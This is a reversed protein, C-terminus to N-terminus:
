YPVSLSDLMSEKGEKVLILRRLKTIASWPKISNNRVVSLELTTVGEPIKFIGVYQRPSGNFEIVETQNDLTFLVEIGVSDTSEQTVYLHYKGAVENELAYTAKDGESSMGSLYHARSLSNGSTSSPGFGNIVAVPSGKKIMYVPAQFSTETGMIDDFATDLKAILSRAVKPATAIINTTELPDAQMDFLLYNGIPEPYNPRDMAPNLILKHTETRLGIIQSSVHMHAKANDDIPTWQNFLPKDSRVDHSALLTVRTNKGGTNGQLYPLFSQGDIEPADKAPKADILELITPLIDQVDIYREVDSPMFRSPLSVFLASRVGNQWTQGKNGNMGSPNRESWEQKTMAGYNSSDWWPGNDSLFIVITNDLKGSKKLHTLLRGIQVDMEEIMGYLNAIAPRYGKKIYKEVLHKPALWPEHPALYSAYAFFPETNSADIFDITYDSIVESVWKGHEVYEGNHWGFSNEHEYLEAYYADDFGRNWPFYGETKGIHWKGWIGTRYGEARLYDSILVEDRKLFDRGGHVGSVGTKYPHRGTLLAARTTSCVPTVSFDSFRVSQSALADLHPTEISPHHYFSLDDHGLDDAMILLINPKNPAPKASVQFSALAVLGFLAAYLGFKDWM